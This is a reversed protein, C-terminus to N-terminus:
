LHLTEAATAMAVHSDASALVQDIELCSRLENNYTQQQHVKVAHAGNCYKRDLRFFM